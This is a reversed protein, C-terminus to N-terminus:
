CIVVNSNIAWSAQFGGGSPADWAIGGYYQLVTTKEIDFLGSTDPNFVIVRLPNGAHALMSWRKSETDIAM